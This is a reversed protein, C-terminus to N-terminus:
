QYLCNHLKIILSNINVKLTRPLCNSCKKPNSAQSGQLYLLTDYKMKKAYGENIAQSGQLYLLTDYGFSSTNMVISAQSGQLYLLTDYMGPAIDYNSNAQSGQLYLLSFCNNILMSYLINLSTQSFLIFFNIKSLMSENTISIQKGLITFAALM